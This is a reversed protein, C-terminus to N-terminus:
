VILVWGIVACVAGHSSDNQSQIFAASQQFGVSLVVPTVLYPCVPGQVSM